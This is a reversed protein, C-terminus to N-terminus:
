AALRQYEAGGEILVMGTFRNKLIDGLRDKREQYDMDLDLLATNARQLALMAKKGDPTLNDRVSECNFKEKFQKASMGTVARNIMDAENSYHYHKAEKGQALRNALVSDTMPRYEDKLITRTAIDKAKEIEGNVLSDYARIVALHFKPSIWMAYAYVLEKCVFTGGNRGQVIEVALTQMDAYKESDVEAILAKTQETRLFFAPQHNKESGAAVHLDNLCYLVGKQRVAIGGVSLNALNKM